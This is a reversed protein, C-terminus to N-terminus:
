LAIRMKNNRNIMIMLVVIVICQGNCIIQWVCVRVCWASVCVRVHM